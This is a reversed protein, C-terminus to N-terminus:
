RKAVSHRYVGFGYGALQVNGREVNIINFELLRETDYGLSVSQTESSFNFVTVYFGSSTNHEIALCKGGCIVRMEHERGLAMQRRLEILRRYFRLMEGGEKTHLREWDIKSELFAHNSAPAPVASMGFYSFENERGKRVAEAYEKSETDIFFWFHREEGFEEGMFLMPTFPSLIVAAPFLFRRGDSFLLANRAGDPRNGVQDHNQSFVVLQNKRYSGESSGRIKHLFASYDGRYCFGELYAKEIQEFSGYDSYYGHREGTLVVHISHHFDDCWQADIGYGCNEEPMIIAPDNKDSEAILFPTFSSNFHSHVREALETLLHKPSNDMINHIADLRLGDFGFVELWYIANSIFFSRVYDCWQDDFNISKGWPSAHVPSFYPGYQGFVNGRHGLHNYVVDLVASMGSQHITDILEILDEPKGYSNQVAYPFVGDYGWNREGEFQAIPLLEVTSVGLSSIHEVKEKLAEFTGNESYTGVHLEYLVTDEASISRHSTSPNLHSLDVAISPGFVGSPQYRSAPDPLQKGDLILWYEDRDSVDPLPAHWIGYDNRNLPLDSGEIRIKLDQANPAWVSIEANGGAFNLGIENYTLKWPLLEKSNM